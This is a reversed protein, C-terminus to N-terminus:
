FRFFIGVGATIANINIPDQPLTYTSVRHNVGGQEDVNASGESKYIIINRSQDPHLEPRIVIFIPGVADSRSKNIEEYKARNLSLRYGSLEFYGRLKDSIKVQVGLSAQYGVSTKLKYEAHYTTLISHYNGDPLKSLYGYTYDQTISIPIGVVLGLRNYIHFSPKSVAKFTINPIVSLIRHDITTTSNVTTTEYAESVPIKITRGFLYEGDIGINVYDNLIIGFGAGVRIGEGMGKKSVRFFSTDSTKTRSPEGKFSGPSLFGYAGYVKIYMPSNNEQAFIMVSFLQLTIIVITIKTEM